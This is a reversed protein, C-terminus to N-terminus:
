KDNIIEQYAELYDDAIKVWSYKELAKRRANQGFKMRLEKSQILSIIAESITKEDYNTVFGITEDVMEPIDGVSSAVIPCGSAMAELVTLPKTDQFSIHTFIDIENYFKALEERNLQGVLLINNQLNNKIIADEIKNRYSGYGAILLKVDPYEKVVCNMSRILLLLGEVKQLWVFNSVAGLLIGNEQKKKHPFFLDTDVGVGIVKNIKPGLKLEVDNKQSEATVTVLDAKKFPIRYIFRKFLSAKKTYQTIFTHAWFTKENRTIYGIFGYKPAGMTHVIDPKMRNIFSIVEKEFNVTESLSMISKKRLQYQCSGLFYTDPYEEHKKRNPTLIKVEHGQNKFKHYLNQTIITYGGLDPLFFPPILIIKMIITLQKIHSLANTLSIIFLKEEM